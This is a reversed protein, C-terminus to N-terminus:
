EGKALEQWSKVVDDDGDIAIAAIFHRWDVGAM